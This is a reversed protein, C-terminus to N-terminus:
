SFFKKQPYFPLDDNNILNNIENNNQNYFKEAEDEWGEDFTWNEDDFCDYYSALVSMMDMFEEDSMSDISRKFDDKFLKIENSFPFKNNNNKKKKM